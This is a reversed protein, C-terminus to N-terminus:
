ARERLVALVFYNGPEPQERSFCEALGVALEVADVLCCRNVPVEQAIGSFVGLAELSLPSRGASRPARGRQLAM